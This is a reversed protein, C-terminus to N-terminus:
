KKNRQPNPSPALLGVEEEAGQRARFDATCKEYPTPENAGYKTFNSLVESISQDGERTPPYPCFIIWEVLKDLYEMKQECSLEPVVDYPFKIKIEKLHRAISIRERLFRARLEDAKRPHDSLPTPGPGNEQGFSDVYTPALPCLARETASLPNTGTRPAWRYTDDWAQNPPLYKAREQHTKIWKKFDEDKLDNVLWEYFLLRDDDKIAIEGHFTNRENLFERWNEMLLKM